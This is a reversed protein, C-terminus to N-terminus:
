WRLLRLFNIGLDFQSIFYSVLLGLGVSVEGASVTLIFVCSIVGAIDELQLSSYIFVLNVGLLLLELAFFYSILNGRGLYLGLLGFGLVLGGLWNIM